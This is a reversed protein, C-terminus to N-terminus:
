TIGQPLYFKINNPVSSRSSKVLTAKRQGPQHNDSSLIIRTHPVHSWTRGLSPLWKGDDSSVVNNTVLVAVSYDVALIKLKQSIQVMLSHGDIQNGGLIPYIVSAICDVIVLKINSYFVDSKKDLGSRIEEIVQFIEFIDSCACHKVRSLIEEENQNKKGALELVRTSSFSCSTDIYIVNAQKVATTYYLCSLCIQTKGVAIGGCIETVEGIYIGGNLLDDLRKIGTSLYVIGSDVCQLLERGNRISSSLKVLIHRKMAVLDKFPLANEQAVEELDRGLFDTVTRIGKEEFVQLAKETILSSIFVKLLAM